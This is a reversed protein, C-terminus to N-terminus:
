LEETDVVWGASNYVSGQRDCVYLMYLAEHLWITCIIYGHM